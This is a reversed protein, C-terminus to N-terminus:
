KGVLGDLRAKVVAVTGADGKRRADGLRLRLCRRCTVVALDTTANLTENGYDCRVGDHLAIHIPTM